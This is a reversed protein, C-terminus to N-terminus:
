RRKKGKKATSSSTKVARVDLNKPRYLKFTECNEGGQYLPLKENASNGDGALKILKPKPLIQKVFSLNTKAGHTYFYPVVRTNDSFFRHRSAFGYYDKSLEEAVSLASKFADSEQNPCLVKQQAPDLENGKPEAVKLMWDSPYGLSKNWQIWLNVPYENVGALKWVSFQAPRSVVQAPTTMGAIMADAKGSRLRGFDSAGRKYSKFPTIELPSLWNYPKLVVNAAGKAVDKVFESYYSSSFLNNAENEQDVTIARAAIIAGIADFQRAGGYFCSEAEGYLTRAIGDISRQQAGGDQGQWIFHDFSNEMARDFSMLYKYIKAADNSEGNSVKSTNAKRLIIDSRNGPVSMWNAVGEESIGSRSFLFDEVSRTYYYHVAQRADSSSEQLKPFNITMMPPLRNYLETKFESEEPFKRPNSASTLKSLYNLVRTYAKSEEINGAGGNSFLGGQFFAGLAIWQAISKPELPTAGISAEQIRDYLDGLADKFAENEFTKRLQGLDVTAAANAPLNEELLDFYDELSDQLEGNSEEDIQVLGNHGSSDSLYDEIERLGQVNKTRIETYVNNLRVLSTYVVILDYIFRTTEYNWRLLDSNKKLESSRIDAKAFAV